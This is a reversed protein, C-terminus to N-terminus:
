KISVAHRQLNLANLERYDREYDVVVPSSLGVSKLLARGGADNRMNLISRIVARRLVAPVRSHAILPHSNIGPTEYLIRLHKKLGTYEHKFTSLVGGGADVKGLFVNRYVNEHTGVYDPTFELGMKDKLLARPYLSAGLANPDPFAIKAGDLQEVSQVPSDARVVIIGTLKRSDDRILPIYGQRERALMAYYPNMFAFDPVGGFLEAEFEQRIQYVRLKFEVGAEDSLRELFPTWAKILTVASLRPARALIYIEKNGGYSVGSVLVLLLLVCAVRKIAPSM